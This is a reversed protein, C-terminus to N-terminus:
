NGPAQEPIRTWPKGQPEYWQNHETILIYFPLIKLTHDDHVNATDGSPLRKRFAVSLFTKIFEKDPFIRDTLFVL